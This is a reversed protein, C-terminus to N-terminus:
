SRFLAYVRLTMIPDIGSACIVLHVSVHLPCDVKNVCLMDGAEHADHIIRNFPYTDSVDFAM